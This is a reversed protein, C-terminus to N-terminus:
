TGYLEDVVAMHNQTVINRKVKLTPTLENDEMTLSRDLIAFKRIHEVRAYRDNMVDVGKQIEARVADSERLDGDLGNQVGFAELSEANLTILATLFKKGEGCVVAHEVLPIDMLDGELNAPTINKGGATILIDKKRGIISLYGENDLRGLDGTHMWGDVLTENTADEDKLYGDFLSPARVLIEDDEAIKVELGPIPRGVTGLKVAGPINFTTPGCDESQGYVEYILIGLSHYFDIVQRSIPAAGSIPLKCEDLGIAARIKSLVLKDAIRHKLALLGSAERGEVQEAAVQQGVGISWQALTARFGTAEGLRQQLTEYIKQWVRPVGFCVTPKCDKLHDGLEDLSRAFWVEYGSHVHNHISNMAEAIHALPLYSLMRDEDEVFFMKKLTAATWSLAGHSLVVAKPPGTTGSTYILTGTTSREVNKLRTELEDQLDDAGLACFDAWGTQIDDQLEAGRMMVVHKLHPLQDRAEAVRSYQEETQVLIVPAESHNLIYAIEESSCTFYIGAPAGGAMMAALAMITWEPQNSGLICVTDGPKVGFHILGRAATEVEDAYAKWSTTEWNTGNLVRYAVADPKASAMDLLRQPAPTFYSEDAISTM